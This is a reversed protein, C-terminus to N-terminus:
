TVVGIRYYLDERFRGESLLKPLDANTATIVRVDVAIAARGGIREVKHDQLFRLLKVQLATPLEGIEDLFLTGGHATEIRGRRQAHAGTFSGKEHG